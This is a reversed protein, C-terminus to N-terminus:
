FTPVIELFHDSTISMHDLDDKNQNDDDHCTAVTVVPISLPLAMFSTFYKKRTIIIKIILIKAMVVV